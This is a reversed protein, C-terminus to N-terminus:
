AASSAEEGELGGEQCNVRSDYLNLLGQGAPYPVGM